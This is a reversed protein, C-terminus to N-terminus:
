GKKTITSLLEAVDSKIREAYEDATEYDFRGYFVQNTGLIKRLGDRALGLKHEATKYKLPIKRQKKSKKNNINNDNPHDIQIFGAPTFIAHWEHDCNSCTRKDSGDQLAETYIKNGQSEWINCKPCASDSGGHPKLYNEKMGKDALEKIASWFKYKINM